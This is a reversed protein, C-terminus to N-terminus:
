TPRFHRASRMVGTLRDEWIVELPITYWTGRSGRRPVCSLLPASLPPRCQQWGSGTLTSGIAEVLAAHADSNTLQIGTLGGVVLGHLFAM